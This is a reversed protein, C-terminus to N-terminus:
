KKIFLEKMKKAGIGMFSVGALIFGGSVLVEVPLVYPIDMFAIQKEAFVDVSLTELLFCIFWFFSRYINKIIDEIEELKNQNIKIEEEIGIKYKESEGDLKEKKLKSVKDKIPVALTLLLALAALSLGALTAALDASLVQDLKQLSEKLMDLTAQNIKQFIMIFIFNSYAM